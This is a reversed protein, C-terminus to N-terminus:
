VLGTLVFPLIIDAAAFGFFVPADLMLPAVVLVPWFAPAIGFPVGKRPIPDSVAPAFL